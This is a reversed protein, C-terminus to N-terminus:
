GRKGGGAKRGGGYLNALIFYAVMFLSTSVYFWELCSAFMALIFSAASSFEWARVTRKM